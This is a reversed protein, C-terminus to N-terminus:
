NLVTVSTFNRPDTGVILEDQDDMIKVLWFNDGTKGFFRWTGEIIGCEPDEIRVQKGDMEAWVAPNEKNSMIQFAAM